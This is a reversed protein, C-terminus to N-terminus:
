LYLESILVAAGALLIAILGILFLMEIVGTIPPPNLTATFLEIRHGKRPKRECTLM